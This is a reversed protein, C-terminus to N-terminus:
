TDQHPDRDQKRKALCGAFAFSPISPLVQLELYRGRLEDNSVGGDLETFVPELKESM